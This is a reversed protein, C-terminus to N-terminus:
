VVENFETPAHCDGLDQKERIGAPPQARSQLKRKSQAVWTAPTLERRAALFPLLENYAYSIANSDKM